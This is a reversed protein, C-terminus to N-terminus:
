DRRRLLLLGALGLLWLGGAPETSACGCAKPDEDDDLPRTDEETPDQELLDLKFSRQLVVDDGDLDPPGLNLVALRQPGEFAFPEFLEVGDEVAIVAWDIGEEGEFDLEFAGEETVDMFVVGMDYPYQAPQYAHGLALQRVEGVEADPYMETWEPALDSGMRGRLITFDVMALRGDGTLENYADLVDPENNLGEDALALWLDLEDPGYTERLHDLWLVAGYEHLSWLEYERWMWWGDQLISVWPWAQFDPVSLHGDGNGPYTLEEARTAGAEWPLLTPEQFDVAFQLIHNFEHSVYGPYEDVGISPAIVMFAAASRFGDGKESDIYDANVYAGGDADRHIYIDLGESGGVGGDGVPDPWGQEETQLRWVEELIEFLPECRESLAETAYHCRAGTVPDDVYGALGEPRGDAGMLAVGLMTHCNIM